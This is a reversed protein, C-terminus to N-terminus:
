YMFCGTRCYALTAGLSWRAEGPEAWWPSLGIWHMQYTANGFRYDLVMTLHYGRLNAPVDWSACHNAGLWVTQVHRTVGRDYAHIQVPAGELSYGPTAPVFCGIIFSAAEAPTSSFAVLGAAIGLTVLAGTIQRRLRSTASASLPNMMPDEQDPLDRISAAPKIAATMPPVRRSHSAPSMAALPPIVILTPARHGAVLEVLGNTMGLATLLLVHVGRRALEGGPEAVVRWTDTVTV